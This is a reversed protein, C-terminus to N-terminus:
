LNQLVKPALGLKQLPDKVRHSDSIASSLCIISLVKTFFHLYLNPCGWQTGKPRMVAHAFFTTSKQLFTCVREEESPGQLVGELFGGARLLSCNLSGKQSGWPETFQPKWVTTRSKRGLLPRISTVCLNVHPLISTLILDSTFPPNPIRRGGM